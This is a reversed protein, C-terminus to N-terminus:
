KLDPNVKELNEAYRQLLRTQLLRSQIDRAIAQHDVVPAQLLQNLNELVRAKQEPSYGLEEVAESFYIQKEAADKSHGIQTVLENLIAFEHFPIRLPKSTRAEGLRMYKSHLLGPNQAILEDFWTRVKGPLDKDKEKRYEVLGELSIVQILVWRLRRRLEHLGEEIFPVDYRKTKLDKHMDRVYDRLSSFLFRREKEGSKWHGQNEFDARWQRLTAEPQTWLGSRLFAERLARRAAKEQQRFKVVLGPDQIKEATERLSLALDLKGMVDELAKFQTREASFFDPAQPRLISMMAQLRFFSQRLNQEMLLDTKAEEPLNKHTIFFDGLLTFEEHLSQLTLPRGTSFRPRITFVSECRSQAFAPPAFLMFNLLGALLVAKM